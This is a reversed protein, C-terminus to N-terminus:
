YPRCRVVKRCEKSVCGRALRPSPGTSRAPNGCADRYTFAHIRCPRVDTLYPVLGELVNWAVLGIPVLILSLLLGCKAAGFAGRGGPKGFGARTSCRGDLQWCVWVWVWV